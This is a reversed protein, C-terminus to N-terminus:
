TGATSDTSEHSSGPSTTQQVPTKKQTDMKHDMRDRMMDQHMRMMEMRDQRVHERDQTMKQQDIKMQRIDTQLKQRLQEMKTKDITENAWIPLLHTAILLTAVWTGIRYITM